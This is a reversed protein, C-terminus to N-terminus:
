RSVRIESENISLLFVTFFDRCEQIGLNGRCSPFVRIFFTGNARRFLLQLLWLRRFKKGAPTTKRGWPWTISITVLPPFFPSFLSGSSFSVPSISLRLHPIPHSCRRFVSSEYHHVKNPRYIPPSRFPLLSTPNSLPNHFVLAAPHTIYQCM